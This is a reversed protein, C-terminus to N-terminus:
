QLPLRISATTCCGITSDIAFEGGLRGIRNRIGELGFHGKTSNDCSSPDFGTGDDVVAIKLERSAIEANISIRKAKGHYIANAVLERIVSLVAHAITDSINRRSADFRIELSTEDLIQQLTRRIALEFTPEELAESKLDWLCRRLETRSSNLMTAATELHEQAAKPTKNFALRASTLQYSMATLNQALYDHLEAAIRTREDIRLDSKIKQAQSKVLQRSRREAIKRLSFNWLLIAALIVLLGTLVMIFRKPTWWPPHETVLIDNASRVVLIFGTIVPVIRQSNWSESEMVCIGTIQIRSGIEINSLADTSTGTDIPILIGDSEITLRETGYQSSSVARVKGEFRVLKGHFDHDFRKTFPHHSIRYASTELPTQLVAHNNTSVKIRANAMNINFLDTEPYGAADIWNGAEPLKEGSALTIKAILGNDHWVLLNRKQWAALVFGHVSHRKLNAISEAFTRGTAKLRPASFPDKAPPSLIKINQESPDFMILPGGFRRKGRGYPMCICTIELDADVLSRLRELNGSANATVAHLIRGEVNLLAIVFKDDIDDMFADIIFGKIRISRFNGQGSIIEDLKLSQPQPIESTGTKVVNTAHLVPDNAFFDCTTRGDACIVDGEHLGDTSSWIYCGGEDTELLVGRSTIKAVVGTLSFPLSNTYDDNSLANVQSVTTITEAFIYTCMYIASLTLVLHRMVTKTLSSMHGANYWKMAQKM